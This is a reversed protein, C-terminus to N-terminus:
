QALRDLIEKELRNIDERYQDRTILASRLARGAALRITPDSDECQAKYKEIIGELTRLRRRLESLMM